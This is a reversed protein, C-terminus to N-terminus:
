FDGIIQVVPGPLVSPGGDTDWFKIAWAPTLRTKRAAAVTAGGQTTQHGRGVGLRGGDWGMDRFAAHAPAAAMMAVVAAVLAAARVAQQRTKM